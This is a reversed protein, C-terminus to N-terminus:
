LSPAPNPPRDGMTINSGTTRTLTKQHIAENDTDWFDMGVDLIFFFQESVKELKNFPSLSGHLPQVNPCTPMRLRRLCEM